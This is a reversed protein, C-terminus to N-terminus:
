KLHAGGICCHKEFGGAKDFGISGLPASGGGGCKFIFGVWRFFVGEEGGDGDFRENKTLKCAQRSIVPLKVIM